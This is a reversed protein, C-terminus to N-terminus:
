GLLVLDGCWVYLSAPSEAFVECLSQTKSLSAVPCFGFSFPRTWPVKIDWVCSSLYFCLPFLHLINLPLIGSDLTAHLGCSSIFGDHNIACIQGLCPLKHWLCFSKGNPTQLRLTLGDWHQILAVGWPSKPTEAWNAAGLELQMGVSCHGTTPTVGSCGESCSWTQVFGAAAGAASM